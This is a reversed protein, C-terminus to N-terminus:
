AGFRRIFMQRGLRLWQEALPQNGHDFKVHARQGIRWVSPEEELAVDLVFISELAQLGKNDTPDVPISGGGNSGLVSSPLQWQAAPVGRTLRAPITTKVSEALKVDVGQLSERILGIRNQPVAVRVTMAGQDLVFGIREGQRVYRGTLDDARRLVFQGSKGSHIKLKDARQRDRELEGLKSEIKDKVLAANIQDSVSDVRYRIQLEYLEAELLNIRAQLDPDSMAVLAQGANVYSSPVALLETIVGDTGAQVQAKEPPWLVGQAQTASPVPALFVFGLLMALVSASVSLARPRTDSLTQSFL